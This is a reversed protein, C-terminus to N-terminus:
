SLDMKPDIQVNDWDKEIKEILKERLSESTNGDLPKGELVIM